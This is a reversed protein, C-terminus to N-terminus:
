PVYNMNSYENAFDGPEIDWLWFQTMDLSYPDGNMSQGLGWSATNPYFEDAPVDTHSDGDPRTQQTM